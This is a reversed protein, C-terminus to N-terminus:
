RNHFFVLLKAHQVVAALRCAFVCSDPTIRKEERVFVPSSMMKNFVCEGLYNLLAWMPSEAANKLLTQRAKYVIQGTESRPADKHSDGGLARPQSQHSGKSSLLLCHHKSLAFQGQREGGELAREVEKM